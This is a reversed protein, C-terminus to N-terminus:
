RTQVSGSGIWQAQLKQIIPPLPIPSALYGPQIFRDIRERIANAANIMLSHCVKTTDNTLGLAWSSMKATISWRTHEHGQDSVMLLIGCDTMLLDYSRTTWLLLLSSPRTEAHTSGDKGKKTESVDSLKFAQALPRYAPEVGFFLVTMPGKEHWTFRRRRHGPSAFAM